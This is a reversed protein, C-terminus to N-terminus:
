AAATILGAACGTAMKGVTMRQLARILIEDTTFGAETSTDFRMGGRLGLYMYSVDGFIVHVTSLADSATYVPLVDIWRVPFGDLTPGTQFPQSGSGQIQANPNYPKNGSTNYTNLLQEMTPHMYYAGFRIASADPVARLARFHALTFESPSGLGTSTTTKSDTAVNKTLGEATGNIGSGAGTSVWFQTDEARAMQRASYRAIFQGIPVISDEDLETPLRVLGGFKEATFTVFSVTPSKETVTGSGAILGFTTDTGLKPLKVTGAGLPMVTGYMRATGFQGVLEAVEGSWVTPLPIDSSTLATRAEVGTIDKIMGEAFDREKGGNIQGGKLGMLLYIAGLHRACDESVFGPKPPRNSRWNAQHKEMKQLLGRVENAETKLRKIEEPTEKLLKFQEEVGNIKTQLAEVGGLVKKQFDADPLGAESDSKLLIPVQSKLM